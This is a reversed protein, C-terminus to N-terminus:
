ENERVRRPTYMGPDKERNLKALRCLHQIFLDENWPNHEKDREEKFRLARLASNIGTIASQMGGIVSLDDLMSDTLELAM